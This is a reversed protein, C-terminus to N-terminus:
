RVFLLDKVSAIGTNPASAGLVGLGVPDVIVGNDLGDVDLDGGETVDYTVVMAAQGGITQAAKTADTITFYANTSPKYKRVTADNEGYFFVKVATSECNATFNLLGAPYSYSSDQVAKTNEAATAVSELTCGDDVELAVYKGNVSSELATVNYQESDQTGDNNADGANPAASEVEDSIGDNDSDTANEENPCADSTSALAAIEEGSLSRNYVRVDDLFGTSYGLGDEETDVWNYGYGIQFSPMHEDYDYVIDAPESNTTSSMEEGDLYLTAEGTAAEYTGAVHHWEDFPIIGEEDNYEQNTIDEGGAIGVGFWLTDHSVSLDYGLVQYGEGAYLTNSVIPTWVSDSESDIYVWGSVTVSTPRLSASTPVYVGGKNSPTGDFRLSGTNSCSVPTNDSWFSSVNLDRITGDNNSSSSDNATGGAGDNFKWFGVLGTTLDENLEAGVQHGPSVTLVSIFVLAMALMLSVSKGIRIKRM